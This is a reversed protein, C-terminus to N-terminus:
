VILWLKGLQERLYPAREWLHRIRLIIHKCWSLLIRARERKYVMCSNRIAKALGNSDNLGSNNRIARTLSNSGNLGKTEALGNSGNAKVLGNSQISSRYRVEKILDTHSITPASM